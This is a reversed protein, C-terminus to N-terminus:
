KRNKNKFYDHTAMNGTGLDIIHLVNIEGSSLEKNDTGFLYVREKYITWYTFEKLGTNVSWSQKGDVGVRALLIKGDTGVQDKYVVLFGDPGPLHVPKGSSIDLLFGGLLYVTNSLEQKEEGISWKSYKKLPDKQTLSATYLKHRGIENYLKTHDFQERLKELDEATSLGYWKKNFSDSNVKIQSFSTSSRLTEEQRQQERINDMEEGVNQLLGRLSDEMKSISERERNFRGSSDRYAAESIKREIYLRNFNRFRNYNSDTLWRTRELQKELDKKRALGPDKEKEGAYPTAVLTATNLLYQAADTATIMVSGSNDDFEYYQREVPLKGKLSPNKEELIAADATKELTFPDFAMLEGAFLWATNNSVGLIEVPFSKIQSRGKIKKSQIQEGSIGDNNQIYYSVSVSKRVSGGTRSYSVTKEFKVLSFVFTKGNKELVLPTSLASREDYKALCSRLLMVIGFVLLGITFIGGVVVKKVM